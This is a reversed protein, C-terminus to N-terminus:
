CQKSSIVKGGGALTPLYSTKKAPAGLRMDKPTVFKKTNPFKGVRPKKLGLNMGPGRTQRVAPEGSRPPKVMNKM